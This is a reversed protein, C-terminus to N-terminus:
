LSRWASFTEGGSEPRMRGSGGIELCDSATDRVVWQCIVASMWDSDGRGDSPLPDPHPSFVSNARRVVPYCPEYMWDDWADWQGWGDWGDQRSECPPDAESFRSLALM